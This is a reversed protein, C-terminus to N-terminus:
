RSNSRRSTPPILYNDRDPDRPLLSLSDGPDDFFPGLASNFDKGREWRNERFWGAFPGFDPGPFAIKTADVILNNQISIGQDASSNNLSFALEVDGFSNEAIIVDSVSQPDPFMLSIASLGTSLVNRMITIQRNAYQIVIPHGFVPSATRFKSDTVEIYRVPVRENQGGVVLGVGGGRISLDKLRIPSDETGRAGEHLNIVGLGSDLPSVLECGEIRVGPCHGSIELAHQNTAAEIRFGHIVVRSTGVIKIVPQTGSSRLITSATSILTLGELRNGQITPLISEYPGPDLVHIIQNKTAHGIADVISRYDANGAMSVTIIRQKPESTVAWNRRDFLNDDTKSYVILALIGVVMAFGILLLATFKKKDPKPEPHEYLSDGHHNIQALHVTLQDVVEQASQFRDSPDKELLRDVIKIFSGPIAKNLVRLSVHKQSTIRRATGLANEGRFPSHGTTMAYMVCGLSFLDSRQDLPQGNVQEPSMYAPTGVVVGQSTLESQDLLVRALGFDTIKVRDIQDELMINAPKIDRHIVGQRHAAALGDSIQLSIRLIESTTLPRDSRIRDMLSRGDVYEMVLFPIGVHEAVAHITVVNPHNIAAAARAERIFRNVAQDSAMLHPTMLKIAVTRNLQTDFARVVVGMAGRGIVRLLEYHTLRGFSDPRGPPDLSLFQLSAAEDSANDLGQRLFPETQDSISHSFPALETSKEPHSGLFDVKSKGFGPSVELEAM